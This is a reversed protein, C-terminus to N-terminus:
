VGPCPIITDIKQPSQFSEARSVQPVRRPRHQGATRVRRFSPEQDPRGRGNGFVRRRRLQRGARCRLPAPVLRIGEPDHRRFIPQPRGRGHPPPFRGGQRRCGDPARPRQRHGGGDAGPLVPRQHDRKGGPFSRGRRGDADPGGYPQGADTRNGAQRRRVKALADANAGHGSLVLSDADLPMSGKTSVATVRGDKVKVERGFENTGTSRGYQGNYVILDQALRQRNVGSIFLDRGDPLEVTGKYSLDQLVSYRGTKDMVLASRPTDDGGFFTGNWKCNGIVWGDTDFYCANIVARAGTVSAARALRGRGNHDLAASFPKVYYGSGPALTLAYLRVVKGNMDDQWYAYQLGNGLDRTQRIIQIRYLDLVLRDPKKLMLVRHQGEKALTVQLRSANKGQPTVEIQRVAPDKPKQTFKKATKTDLDLRLVTGDVTEKYQVPADLDLVVRVKTPSTSVRMNTVAAQASTQVLLLLAGLLGALRGTVNGKM